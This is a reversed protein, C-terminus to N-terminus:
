IKATERGPFPTQPPAFIKPEAKSCGARLTQTERLAKKMLETAQSGGVAEAMAKTGGGFSSPDVRRQVAILWGRHSTHRQQQQKHQLGCWLGTVAAAAAALCQLKDNAGNAPGVSHSYQSALLAAQRRRGISLAADVNTNDARCSPCTVAVVFRRENLDADDDISQRESGRTEFLYVTKM